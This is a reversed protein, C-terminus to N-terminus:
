YDEIVEKLSDFAKVGHFLSMGALYQYESNAKQLIAFKAEELLNAKDYTRRDQEIFRGSQIHGFAFPPSREHDHM